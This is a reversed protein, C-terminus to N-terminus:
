IWKFVSVKQINFCRGADKMLWHYDTPFNWNDKGFVDSPDDICIVEYVYDECETFIAEEADALTPYIGIVFNDDLVAFMETFIKAKDSRLNWIRQAGGITRRGESSLVPTKRCQSCRYVFLEKYDGCFNLKPKGGCYPCPKLEDM